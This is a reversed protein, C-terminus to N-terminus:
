SLKKMRLHHIRAGNKLTPAPIKNIIINLSLILIVMVIVLNCKIICKLIIRTQRTVSTSGHVSLKIYM